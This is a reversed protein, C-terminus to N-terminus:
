PSIYKYIFIKIDFDFIHDQEWAVDRKHKQIRTKLPRKTIVIYSATCDVSFFFNSSVSM